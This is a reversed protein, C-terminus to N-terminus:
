AVPRRSAVACCLRSSCCPGQMACPGHQPHDVVFEARAVVWGYGAVPRSRGGWALCGIAGADPRPRVAEPIGARVRALEALWTPPTCSAAVEHVQHHSADIVRFAPLHGHRDPGPRHYWRGFRCHHIDLPPPCHSADQEPCQVLEEIWHQHDISAGLLPFDDRSWPSLWRAALIGRALGLWWGPVAEAPMPRAIGYGQGLDCGLQILLAGHELTEM